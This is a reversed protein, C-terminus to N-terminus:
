SDNTSSILLQKEFMKCYRNKHLNKGLLSWKLLSDHDKKLTSIVFISLNPRLQKLFMPNPSSTKTSFHKSLMTQLINLDLKLHARKSLHAIAIHTDLYCLIWMMCVSTQIYSTGRERYINDIYFPDSIWQKFYLLPVM